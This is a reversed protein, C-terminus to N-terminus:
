TTQLERSHISGSTEALREGARGSRKAVIEALISVATEAPTRAGLDLGCPGSIREFQSEDVGAERLRELRERHTRRSGLAGIYGAGSELAAILAPEDFKSDHTFVLVADRPGLGRGAMFRDPWDVATNAVDSFRKSSIFPARADCITVQYGLEHELKAVAVSFDIAGFIVMEPPSAFGQIYVSLESGMVEGSASYRRITTLGQELCGLADRTVTAELREIGGLGGVTGDETVAMMSGAVEGDLVTALAVPTGALLNDRVVNLPERAEDALEHVFLRVQGGCMLGVDTAQQDSIGYQVVRPGANNGLMESAVEVLAGEVCGGTVSGEIRGSDDVLMEAGPDLPASGVTEILSAAVVRHGESLWQLAVEQRSATAM